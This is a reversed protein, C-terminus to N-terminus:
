KQSLRKVLEHLKELQRRAKGMNEQFESENGNKRQRSKEFSEQLDQIKVDLDWIATEMETFDLGSRVASERMIGISHWTGQLQVASLSLEIAVEGGEKKRAHVMVVKGLADGRGSEQFLPFKLCHAELYKEPALLQHLNKGIVEEEKWGLLRTASGNWFSILGREDMMVIGDQAASTIARFTAEKEGLALKVKKGEWAHFLTRILMQNSFEGKVLFDDAGLRKAEIGTELDNEASCVVIASSPAAETIKRLTDFGDSDPLGLDLLIMDQPMAQLISRAETLTVATEVDFIDPPIQKFAILYFQLAAKVDEVILVRLRRGEPFHGLTKLFELM